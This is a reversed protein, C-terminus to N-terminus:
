RNNNQNKLREIEKELTAIKLRYNAIEKKCNAISQKDSPLLKRNVIKAEITKIQLEKEKHGRQM